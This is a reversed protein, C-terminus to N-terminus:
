EGADARAAAPRGKSAPESDAGLGIVFSPRRLLPGQGRKKPLGLDPDSEALKALWALDPMNQLVIKAVVTLPVSLLAGMPGWLWGWFLMALLVVFPSMGLTRGLWRPELVNGILTNLILYCAAVGAAVGPGRDALAVLVAPILAIASGVNPIFHLLFLSLALLLALGVGFAKLVLFACVGAILSSGLKVVLYLQVQRVVRDVHALQADGNPALARLKDGMLTVECLGFFVVFLVVIVHSTFDAFSSALSGAMQDFHLWSTVSSGLGHRRTFEGAAHTMAGLRRLYSPLRGQLDSAALAVLSGIASLVVIDVLLVLGAAVIPPMRRALLWTLLPSSAAAIMCGLLVPVIFGAALKLGAIVIVGAALSVLVQYRAAISGM